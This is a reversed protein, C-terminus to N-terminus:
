LPLGQEKRWAIEAQTSAEANVYAEQRVISWYRLDDLLIRQGTVACVVYDGPSLMRFSYSMYHLRAPGDKGTMLM